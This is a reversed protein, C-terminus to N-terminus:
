QTSLSIINRVPLLLCYSSLIFDKGIGFTYIRPCLDSGQNRLQKIMVECIQRENEVAGDTVFFIVPISQTAGSLM